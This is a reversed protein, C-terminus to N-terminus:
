LATAEYDIFTRYLDRTIPGPKGNGIIQTDIQIIPVIKKNTGTLFAEDAQAVEAWLVDRVEVPYQNKAMDIVAKRTIGQLINRAPTIVVGDKVIFFNSRTLESVQGNFHYIIDYAEQALQQKRLRLATSYNTTKVEPMERQYEYSMLKVGREMVQDPVKSLEELMIIFNPKVPTYGDPTYGGTLLLRIGAFPLKSIELLEYIAATIQEDTYLLDLEMLQSSRRFRSVYERLLFPKGHSARCFDFVAYGRLLGLDHIAITAKDGSLIQGNFYCAAIM